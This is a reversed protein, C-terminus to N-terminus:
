IQFPGDLFGLARAANLALPTAAAGNTSFIPLM